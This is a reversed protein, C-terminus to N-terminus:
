PRPPGAEPPVVPEDTTKGLREEWRRPDRRLHMIALVLIRDQLVQYLVGYPFRNVFCRRCRRSFLPWANPVAAMRDFTAKVEAAFEYGLGPFQQNYYDVAEAFKAEACSLVEIRM